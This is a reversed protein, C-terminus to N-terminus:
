NSTLKYMRWFTTRSMWNNINLHKYWRPAVLRTESINKQLSTYKSPLADGRASMIFYVPRRSQEVFNRISDAGSMRVIHMNPTVYFNMPLGQLFSHQYFDEIILDVKQSQHHRYIYSVPKLIHNVPMTSIRALILLNHTGFGVLAALMALRVARFHNVSKAASAIAMMGFVLFVPMAHAIPFLFRLEKHAILMHLLVFPVCTFTLIHKPYRLWAVVVLILIILSLPMHAKELFEPIYFWWPSVGFEAAKGELINITFYRYATNVWNGYFFYDSIFGLGLALIGGLVLLVLNKFPTRAIFLCWLGLGPLLMIMQLRFVLSLGILFGCCIIFLLNSNQAPPYFSNKIVLLAIASFFFIGAWSESSFRADMFVVFWLFIGLLLSAKRFRFDQIWRFSAATILISTGYGLLCSLVRLMGAVTFSDHERFLAHLKIFYYAIWPQLSPRIQAKHEWALDEATTLGAKYGAFELIQYHEDFHFFGLSNWAAVLHVLLGTIFIIIINKKSFGTEQSFYNIM